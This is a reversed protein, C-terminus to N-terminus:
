ADARRLPVINSVPQITTLLLAEWKRLAEGIEAEYTHHDYVGGIGSKHGAHNLVLEAIHPLVGLKGLRTRVTRRLDHLRWPALSKGATTTIAANLRLTNYSWANFGSPGGGFVTERGHRRPVQRLIEQAADPLPLVFPRKSKIREKPFTLKGTDLDIESWRLSGIEDRRCATLLLVRVIRGFDDDGCQDWIARIEDDTLVRDRPEKGEVPNETGIVPNGKVKAQRMCWVFFAGLTGRARAASTPGHDRVLDRLLGAVDEFMVKTVARKHLPRCHDLLYRKAAIYTNPRMKSVRAELYEEAAKLFTDADAAQEAQLRKRDAVPDIHLEVQAFRKRAIERADKLELKRVDGLSERRQKRGIRYQVVFSSRGGRLRVGFSPLEPDWHIFDAKGAPVALKRVSTDTWRNAKDSIM